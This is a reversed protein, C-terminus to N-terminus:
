GLLIDRIMAQLGVIKYENNGLSAGKAVALAAAETAVEFTVPKGKLYDCALAPLYPIPACGGLVLRVDGYIGDIIQIKAAVSYMAFDISDRLRFKRYSTKADGVPPVIIECVLEGPKLMDELKLTSCFFEAATLKRETTVISADLALLVPAIDSPDVAFCGCNMCRSAEALAEEFVPAIEDEQTLGRESIPLEKLKLGEKITVGKTDLTLFGTPTQMGVCDHALELGLYRIIGRAAAHGNAICDIVTTPGTTVDGGAFVGERSTMKSEEAVDILGRSTLELQYKEDLFSLDTMQGVAMLINEATVTLTDTEDYVPAFRRYEDYVSLARKLEMGCVKGDTSVVKSLGWGNLIEIGEERARAIEEKGAPMEEESELCALTVRKAGLRKATIAVDMAVNGGGTVLVESGVKGDMWNNVEVLFDLGFVTLEEGSLGLVPRKWTGTAYYVADFSEELESPTIDKGVKCGLSFNIGMNKLTDTYNRVIEKPLRYAPIAYLLMGGAEPKLDFVTVDIGQRRLYYASSLGAPGSGVVAVKKNALAETTPPTFFLDTKTQIFDGLWREVNRIAVSEGTKGQNCGDQCFHACVRSTIQPMPNVNMLIQAAGNPNNLRLQEMYEPIATAAPCSSTCPNAGCRMGGFVSHYRNDGLIAYCNEGGKRKCVIRGGAEHPYRYFWCRVDQCINGGITAMNRILPTAVTAAAEALATFNNVIKEDAAIASLKANAGIRLSGDIIATIASGPIRKLDVLTQPYDDLVDDKCRGLIDSGGALPLVGKDRCLEAAEKFSTARQYNLKKM